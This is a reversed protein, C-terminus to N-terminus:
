VRTLNMMWNKHPWTKCEQIVNSLSNDIEKLGKVWNFVLLSYVEVIIKEFGLDWALRLGFLLAWAEAEEIFSCRMCPSQLVENGHERSM